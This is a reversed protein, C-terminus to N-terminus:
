HPKARRHQRWLLVAIVGLAVTLLCLGTGVATLFILYATRETV